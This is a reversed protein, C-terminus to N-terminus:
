RWARCPSSPTFSVQEAPLVTLPISHDKRAVAPMRATYKNKRACANSLNKKHATLAKSLLFGAAGIFYSLSYFLLWFVEQPAEHRKGIICM